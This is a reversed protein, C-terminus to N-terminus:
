VRHPRRASLPAVIATGVHRNLEDPSVVVCPRTNRAEGSPEPDMNLLYIDFRNVM